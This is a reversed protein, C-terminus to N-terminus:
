SGSSSALGNLQGALWSSQSNMKNLATELATYQRSLSKERLELRVDWEAISDTLRKIGSQRSAIAATLAGESKDSAGDAVTKIRDAFGGAGLAATIAAPDAAYATKFTAEDLVVNGSRDMQIGLTALTSGDDPMVANLLKSRIDRAVSNGALLGSAKTSPNYATLTEIEDIVANLADVFGKISTTAGATDRSVAITTTVPTTTDPALSLSVGPVLDTFTNTSSTATIGNGLSISADRGVRESPVGLLASGDLQSLKFDSSGGTSTSEVLLQYANDGVKVASARLGTANAPANIADVLGKLTGDTTLDLPTSGDLRDLRVTTSAGTVQDTLAVKDGYGIQHALAVANVTVSLTTPSATSTASVTVKDSTSTARLPTWATAETLGKARTALAALKANLTQMSGVEREEAGLRTKLRSQPVAELQMLQSIITATDLGSALGSISGAM